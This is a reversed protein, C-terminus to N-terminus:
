QALKDKKMKAMLTYVTNQLAKWITRLMPLIGRKLQLAFRIIPRLIITQEPLYTIYEGGFKTKFETIGQWPHNKANLPTIGFMDYYKAGQAKCHEIAAWQLAYPAMYKRYEYNSAGYYYTGVDGHVTGILGAIPEKTNPIYAYLVFAGPVHEIFAQYTSAPTTFANRKGTIAHLAAFAKADTSHAITVGNKLAVEANYRAKPKANGKLVGISERIDIVISAEPFVHRKSPRSYAVKPMIQECSTFIQICRTKKAKGIIHEVLTIAAAQSSFVPGRPLTWTTFGFMTANVTCLASALITEGEIAIYITTQEGKAKCYMAWELTQWVNNPAVHLLWQRYLVEDTQTRLERIIM